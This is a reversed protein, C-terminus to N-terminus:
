NLPGSLAGRLRQVEVRRNLRDDEVTTGQSLMQRKGMGKSDFRAANLGLSQLAQQVRMARRQSLRQNYDDSGLRDTHGVLVFRDRQFAANSLARALEAVQRQGEANLADSNEEFNVPLDISPSIGQSRSAPLGLSHTIEQATVLRNARAGQLRKIADATEQYYARELSGRYWLLAADPDQLDEYTQAMRYEARAAERLDLTLGAAERYRTIAEEWKHQGRLTEAQSMLDRFTPQSQALLLATGALGAILFANM